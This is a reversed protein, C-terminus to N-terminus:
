LPRHGQVDDKSPSQRGVRHVPGWGWLFCVAWSPLPIFLCIEGEESLWRLLAPLRVVPMHWGSQQTLRTAQRASPARRWSSGTALSPAWSRIAYLTSSFCGEGAGGVVEVM